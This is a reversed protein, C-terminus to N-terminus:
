YDEDGAWDDEFFKDKEAILRDKALDFLIDRTQPDVVDRREPDERQIDVLSISDEDIDVGYDCWNTSEDNEYYLEADVSLYVLYYESNYEVEIEKEYEGSNHASSWSGGVRGNGDNPVRGSSYEWAENRRRNKAALVSRKQSERLCDKVPDYTLQDGNEIQLTFTGDSNKVCHLVDEPKVEWDMLICFKEVADREEEVSSFRENLRRNNASYAENRRRNKKSELLLGRSEAEAKLINMETEFGLSKCTNYYMKLKADSCAGVNQKREGNHWATMKQVAVPNAKFETTTTEAPKETASNALEKKPLLNIVEKLAEYTFSDPNKMKAFEAKLEEIAHRRVNARIHRMESEPTGLSFATDSYGTHTGWSSGRGWIKNIQKAINDTTIFASQTGAKDSVTKMILKGFPSTKDIKINEIRASVRDFDVKSMRSGHKEFAIIEGTKTDFRIDLNYDKDPKAIFTAGEFDKFTYGNIEFLAVAKDIINKPAAYEDYSNTEDNYYQLNKAIVEGNKIECEIGKSSLGKYQKDFAAQKEDAKAKKQADYSVANADARSVLEDYLEQPLNHDHSNYKAIYDELYYGNQIDSVCGTNDGKSFIATYGKVSYFAEKGDKGVVGPFYITVYYSTSGGAIRGADGQSISASVPYERGTKDMIYGNGTHDVYTDEKSEMPSHFDYIDGTIYQNVVKRANVKLNVNSPKKAENIRM